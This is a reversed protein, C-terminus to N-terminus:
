RVRVTGADIGAVTVRYTGPDSLAIRFDGAPTTLGAAARKWKGHVQHYATVRARGHAPEVNGVLGRGGGFVLGAIGLKSTQARPQTADVRVRKFTMWNDRAGLAQRLNTGTVRVKGKSGVVDAAVIRPSVGKKVVTVARLRGKLYQHLKSELGRQTYTLTWRHLPSITDAPDDVGRLYPKPASGYFVNEVNETHGGSTSFYYTVAPQGNYEVIEGATADVAANTSSRESGVGVYMQSRTDPYQDFIAGGAGTSLAYSRAAVAQAKLAEPDWLSSVEGPVVGKVYDDLTLVNVVTVGGGSSPRLELGGRYTGSTVNNLATGGVRVLDNGSSVVVPAAFTGLSKGKHDRLLLGDGKVSAYYTEGAKLKKNGARTVGTFSARDRNAQLLVRISQTQARAINTGTYYHTLIQKYSSGKLAMGQAGYQSMGIGHGFGAGKVVWRTAANASAPLAAAIVVALVATTSRRVAQV